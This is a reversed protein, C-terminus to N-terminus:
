QEGGKLKQGLKIYAKIANRYGKYKKPKILTKEYNNIMDEIDWINDYSSQSAPCQTVIYEEDEKMEKCICVNTYFNNNMEIRKLALIKKM